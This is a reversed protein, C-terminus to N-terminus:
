LQADNGSQGLSKMREPAIEGRKGLLMNSVKWGLPEDELTMDKQGKMSNM